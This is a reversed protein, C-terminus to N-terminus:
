VLEGSRVQRETFFMAGSFAANQAVQVIEWNAREKRIVWKPIPVFQNAALTDWHPWVPATAPLDGTLFTFRSKQPNGNAPVVNRQDTSYATVTVPNSPSGSVNDFGIKCRDSVLILKPILLVNEPPTGTASQLVLCANRAAPAAATTWILGYNFEGTLREWELKSWLDIVPQLTEGWRELASDHTDDGLAAKLGPGLISKLLENHLSGM